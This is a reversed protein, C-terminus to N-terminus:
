ARIRAAGPLLFPRYQEPVPQPPSPEKYGDLVRVTGTLPNLVLTLTTQDDAVHIVSRETRGLPFFQILARGVGVKGQHVTTMDSFRVDPPLSVRQALSSDAPTREGDPEVSMAWYARADLDLYLRYTKQNAPATVYLMRMMGILQRSASTATGAGSMRPLVLGLVLGLLAMVIILEVLTFGHQCRANPV